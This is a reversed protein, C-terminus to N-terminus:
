GNLRIGSVVWSPYLGKKGAPFLAGRKPWRWLAFAQDYAITREDIAAGSASCVHRLLGNEKAFHNDISGFGAAVAQKAPGEWGLNYAAAYAFTQRPQVCARCDDGTGTAKM